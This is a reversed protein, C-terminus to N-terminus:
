RQMQLVTPDDGLVDDGLECNFMADKMRQSPRTVTDSKLDILKTSKTETATSRVYHRACHQTILNALKLPKMKINM